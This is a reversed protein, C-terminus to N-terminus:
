RPKLPPQGQLRRVLDDWTPAGQPQLTEGGLVGPPFSPLAGTVAAPAESEAKATVMPAATVDRAVLASPHSPAPIRLGREAYVQGEFPPNLVDYKSYDLAPDVIMSSGVPQVTASTLAVRQAQALVSQERGHDGLMRLGFHLHPALAYDGNRNRPGTNGMLAIQQGQPIHDGVRISRTSGDVLHAYCTVRNDDDLMMIFEGGRESFRGVYVVTGSSAAYVPPPPSVGREFNAPVMDLGTHATDERLWPHWRSAGPLSTVRAEVGLPNILQEGRPVYGTRRREEIIRAIRGNISIDRLERFQGLASGRLDPNWQPQERENANQLVAPVSAPAAPTAATPVPATQAYRTNISM